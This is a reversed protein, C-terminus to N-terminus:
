GLRRCRRGSRPVSRPIGRPIARGNGQGGRRSARHHGVHQQQRFGEVSLDRGPTAFGPPPGSDAVVTEVDAQSGLGVLANMQTLSAWGTPSTVSEIELIRESWTRLYGLHRKGFRDYVIVDSAFVFCELSVKLLAERLKQRPAGLIEAVFIDAADRRPRHPM